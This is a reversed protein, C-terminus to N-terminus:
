VVVTEKKLEEKEVLLYETFLYEIQQEVEARNFTGEKRRVKNYHEATLKRALSKLTTAEPIFNRRFRDAIWFAIISSAIGYLGYSTKIFLFVISTLFAILFLIVAFSGAGLIKFKFGLENQLAKIQKRRNAKPFILQLPASPRILEEENDTVKLIADKLKYFSQQTTCGEVHTNGIKNLVAECLEGYTKVHALENNKFKFDFSKELMVLVDGLEEPDIGLNQNTQM